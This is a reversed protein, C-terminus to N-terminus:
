RLGKSEATSLIGQGEGFSQGGSFEVPYPRRKWPQISYCCSMTLLNRSSSPVTQPHEASPTAQKKFIQSKAVLKRRQPSPTGPRPERYEVPDEFMSSCCAALM